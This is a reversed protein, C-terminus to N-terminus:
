LIGEPARDSLDQCCILGRKKWALWEPLPGFSLLPQAEALQRCDTCAAARSQPIPTLAQHPNPGSPCPPPIETTPGFLLNTRNTEGTLLVWLLLRFGMSLVVTM